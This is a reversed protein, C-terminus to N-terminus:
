VRLTDINAASQKLLREHDIMARIRKTLVVLVVSQMLAMAVMISELAVAMIVFNRDADSVSELKQVQRHLDVAWMFTFIGCLFHFSSNFVLVPAVLAATQAASLLSTTPRIDTGTQTATSSGAEAEAEVVNAHARRKRELNELVDPSPTPPKIVWGRQHVWSAIDFRNNPNKVNVGSIYFAFFVIFPVM